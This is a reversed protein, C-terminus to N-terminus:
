TDGPIQLQSFAIRRMDQLHEDKAALAGASGTGETPRVGCNWLQDMLLQADQPDLRMTPPNPDSNNPPGFQVPKGLVRQSGNMGVDAFLMVDIMQSGLNPWAVVRTGRPVYGDRIGDIM